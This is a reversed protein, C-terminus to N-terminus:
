EEDGKGRDYQCCGPLENYVSDKAKKMSTDHGAKAILSHIKVESIKASDYVVEIIKTGVNWNAYKVGGVDIANEIREKCMECNGKVEFRLTDMQGKAFLTTTSLTIVLIFISKITKM